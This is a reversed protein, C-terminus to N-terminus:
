GYIGEARKIAETDFITLFLTGSLSSWVADIGNCVISLEEKLAKMTELISDNNFDGCELQYM